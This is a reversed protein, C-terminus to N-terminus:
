VGKDTAYQTFAQFGENSAFDRFKEWSFSGKIDGKFMQARSFLAAAHVGEVRALLTNPNLTGKFFRLEITHTNQLNLAVYRDYNERKGYMGKSRAYRMYDIMSEREEDTWRAYTSEDRGAVRKWQANNHHFLALFRYMATARGEFFKRGIHVHLGCTRTNASRMGLASLEKIRNVDFDKRFYDIDFPHTVIEVGHNLSGDYKMIAFNGFINRILNNADGVDANMYEAELEIGTMPLLKPENWMVGVGHIHFDPSFKHGHSELENEDEGDEECSQCYRYYNEGHRSCHGYRNGEYCDTCITEENQDIFVYDNEHMIVSCNDCSYFSYDRCDSCIQGHHQSLYGSDDEPTESGCYGCTWTNQEEPSPPEAESLFDSDNTNNNDTTM